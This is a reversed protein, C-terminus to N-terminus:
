MYLHMPGDCHGTPKVTVLLIACAPVWLKRCTRVPMRSDLVRVLARSTQEGRRVRSRVFSRLCADAKAANAIQLIM